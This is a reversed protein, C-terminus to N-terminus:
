RIFLRAPLSHACQSSGLAPRCSLRMVVPSRAHSRACGATGRQQRAHWLSRRLRAPLGTQKAIEATITGLPAEAARIPAMRAAWGRRVALASYDRDMPRWLDTHCGLSSVESAAVGCLRWAWYQAWPVITVDDPLPGFLKEFRHLQMGLNLGCPLAPSGTVMFADRQAEYEDRQAARSKM